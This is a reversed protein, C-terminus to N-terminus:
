RYMRSMVDSCSGPVPQRASKSKYELKQFFVGDTLRLFETSDFPLDRHSHWLRHTPAHSEHPMVAFKAAAAPNCEVVKRFLLQHIFYDIPADEKEWYRLIAERWASVLLSGKRSRFFCNQVFSYSYSSGWAEEPDYMYIFFDESLIRDPVPATAFDTADMWIGGYRYLLEVRCIDAFHAPRIKGRRYKDMIYDPLTIWDGLTGSDLVVLEQSCNRRISRYCAKVIEPANDEGQLWISFIREAADETVAVCEEVASIEPITRDVYRGVADQIVRGRTKRRSLRSKWPWNLIHGKLIIYLVARIGSITM